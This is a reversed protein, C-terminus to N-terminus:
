QTLEKLNNRLTTLSRIAENLSSVWYSCQDTDLDGWVIQDHLAGIGVVAEVTGNVIRNSDLRKKSRPMVADAPVTIGYRRLFEQCGKVSYRLVEAIQATTNGEQALQRAQAVREATVDNGNGHRVIKKRAVARIVNARSLNGEAKAEEVAEDFQEDSVDDTVAYVETLTSREMGGTVEPVSRINVDQVDASTAAYRLNMHPSAITGTDQGKRISLGIGREARRVIEAAALEADRGLQKATTYVRVAEAQSKLEVIADIEGHAVCMTLWEKARECSAIVFAGPDAYQDLAGPQAIVALDTM